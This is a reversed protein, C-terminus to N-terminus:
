ESAGLAGHGTPFSVRRLREVKATSYALFAGLGGSAVFYALVEHWGNLM